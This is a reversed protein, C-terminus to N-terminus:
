IHTTPKITEQTSLNGYGSMQGYHVIKGNAVAYIPTGPPAAFDIGQHGTYSTFSQMVVINKKGKRVVTPRTSSSAFNGVGRSIRTYNLPNIWFNQELETGSSSFFGGTLDDREVWFADVVVRKQTSDLIELGIVQAWKNKSGADYVVRAFHQENSKIKPYLEKVLSALEWILEPPISTTAQNAKYVVLDNLNMTVEIYNEFGTGLQQSDVIFGGANPSRHLTALTTNTNRNENNLISFAQVKGFNDIAVAYPLCQSSLNKFFSPVQREFAEAFESDQIGLNKLFSSMLRTIKDCGHRVNFGQNAVSKVIEPSPTQLINEIINPTPLPAINSSSPEALSSSYNRLYPTQYRSPAGLRPTPNVVTKKSNAIAQQSSSKSGSKSNSPSPNKKATTAHAIQIFGLCCCFFAIL